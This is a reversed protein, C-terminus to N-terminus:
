TSCAYTPARPNCGRPRGNSLLRRGGILTNSRDTVPDQVRQPPPPLFARQHRDHHTNILVSRLDSGLLDINLRALDATRPHPWRVAGPHTAEQCPEGALPQLHRELGRGAPPEKGLLQADYARHHM